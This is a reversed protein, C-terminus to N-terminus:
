SGMQMLRSIREATPPHTSFANAFWKKGTAGFPNAIFLHATAQNASRLPQETQASEIKQLARALGEPYRTLLAGDADALYERTRSIALKILEAILPSLIALAIGLVLFIMAAQNNDNNSRPRIHMLTQAILMIIGVLVVTITMLRIDYNKIHALEHAIVGELEKKELLRLLGTTLTVSAHQPDRGTAFANPSPDDILYIKPMPLGSTIALNEVLNWIEPGDQKALQKAGHTALVVRDALFYSFLSYITAFLTGIIVTSAPDIELYLGVFYFLLVIFGTVLIVLLWTKRKNAAIQSYM